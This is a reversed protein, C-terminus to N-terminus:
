KKNFNKLLEDGLITELTTLTKMINPIIATIIKSVIVPFNKILKGKARKLKAKTFSLPKDM